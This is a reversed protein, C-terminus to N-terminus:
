IGYISKSVRKSADLNYDHKMENKAINYLNWKIALSIRHLSETNAKILANLILPEFDHTDGKSNMEFVNILLDYMPHNLIEVM